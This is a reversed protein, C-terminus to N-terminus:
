WNGSALEVGDLREIAGDIWPKGVRTAAQNIAVRSERNDLCGLIVDAWRYLGLGLDYVINGHFFQTRMQPYIDRARAAAM